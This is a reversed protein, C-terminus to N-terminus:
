MDTIKGKKEILILWFMKHMWCFYSNQEGAWGLLLANAGLPINDSTEIKSRSYLEHINQNEDNKGWKYLQIGCVFYVAMDGQREFYFENKALAFPDIFELAWKQFSSLRVQELKYFSTKIRAILAGLEGGYM